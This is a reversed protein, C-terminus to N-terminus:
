ASQFPSFKHNKSRGRLGARVELDLNQGEWSGRPFYFEPLAAQESHNRCQVVCCPAHSSSLRCCVRGVSIREATLKTNEKKGQGEEERKKRGGERGQKEGTSELSM